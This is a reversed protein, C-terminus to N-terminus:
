RQMEHRQRYPQQPQSHPPLAARRSDIQQQRLLDRIETLLQVDAPPAAKPEDGRRRREQLKKMPLVFLFYVVTAVILFDLVATIVAALDIYTDEKGPIVQFGLRGVSAGGVANLLPQILHTTFSTVIATFASGTVVAVSLDIVNGRMLFDKFGKLM